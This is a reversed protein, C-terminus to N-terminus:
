DMPPWHYTAPDLIQHALESSLETPLSGKLPYNEPDQWHSDADYYVPAFRNVSTLKGRADYHLVDVM